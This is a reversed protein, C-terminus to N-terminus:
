LDAAFMRVKASFDERSSTTNIQDGNTAGHIAVLRCLHAIFRLALTQRCVGIDLTELYADAPLAYSVAHSGVM